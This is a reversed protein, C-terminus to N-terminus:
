CLIVVESIEVTFCKIILYTTYRHIYLLHDLRRNAQELKLLPSARTTAIKRDFHTCFRDFKAEFQYIWASDVPVVVVYAAAVM